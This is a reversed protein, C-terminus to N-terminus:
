MDMKSIWYVSRSCQQCFRQMVNAVLAKTAKSHMECVKHRRHYDKAKTLDAGCDEVQCLARNSSGGAVLKTKKGSSGEWNGVEREGEPVPPFCNGGLKLTLSGPEEMNDEEVVIVRRKRELERRGDDIPYHVDDSCSSSTNSSNGSVPVVPIFQKAQFNTPTAIFLDGDWNWQNLDWEVGRKVMGRFQSPDIGHFEAM